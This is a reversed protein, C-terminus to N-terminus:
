LPKLGHFLTCSFYTSLSLVALYYAEIEGFPWYGLGGGAGAACGLLIDFIDLLYFM